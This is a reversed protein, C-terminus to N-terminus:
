CYAVILLLLIMLSLPVYEHPTHQDIKDTFDLLLVEKEFCCVTEHGNM